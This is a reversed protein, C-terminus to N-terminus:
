ERVPRVSLGLYRQSMGEMIYYSQFVFSYAEQANALSSTWYNGKSGVDDLGAGSRRGAAPLFISNGNRGKVLYGDKGGQTTWTWVCLAKLEDMEAKTPMRWGDGWNERAPDDLLELRGRTDPEGYCSSPVYKCFGGGYSDVCYKLSRWSYDDKPRTEGWAYYWGPQEPTEAGVNCAAWKVTLGLDVYAHDDACRGEATLDCTRKSPWMDASASPFVPTLTCRVVNRVDPLLLITERYECYGDYQLSIIHNGPVIDELIDPTALKTDKGDLWIAAGAPNTIVKVTCNRQQAPLPIALLVFLLATFCNMRLTKM